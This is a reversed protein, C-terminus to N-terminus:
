RKGAVREMLRFMSISFTVLWAVLAILLTGSLAKQRACITDNQPCEDTDLPNGNQCAWGPDTLHQFALSLNASDFVIFFLDLFILRMKARPSRLGLPKSTYEDYMIYFTYLIAVVDVIIALYIATGPQCDTVRGVRLWINAALGLALCSFTLVITRITLPIFPNMMMTRRIKKRMRTRKEPVFLWFGPEGKEEEHGVHSPDEYDPMNADWWQEDAVTSRQQGEGAFPQAFDAWRSAGHALPESQVVPENERLYDFHRGPAANHKPSPLYHHSPSISSQPPRPLLLEGEDAEEADAVWPPVTRVRGTASDM